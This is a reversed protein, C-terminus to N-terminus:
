DPSLYAATGVTTGLKTVTKGSGVKALGFDMIKAQDRATIMINASKIDRHIIGKDHASQLGEAIQAAYSLVKKLPLPTGGNIQLIDQLTKGDIFEMAIFMQEDVEDIEYIHAINPHSLAAASKAERVFRNKDEESSLASSPLFKLAVLRDLKTDEAKYVVGMGGEGLKALIRYHSITSGIM